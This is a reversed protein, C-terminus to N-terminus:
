LTDVMTQRWAIHLLNNIKKLFFLLYFILEYKLFLLKIELLLSVTFM